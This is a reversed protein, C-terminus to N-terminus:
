LLNILKEEFVRRGFYFGSCFVGLVPQFGVQPIIAVFLFKGIDREHDLAFREISM